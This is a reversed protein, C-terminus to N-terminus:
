NINSVYTKHFISFIKQYKLKKYLSYHRNIIEITSLNRNNVKLLALLHSYMNISHLENQVTVRYKLIDLKRGYNVNRHM